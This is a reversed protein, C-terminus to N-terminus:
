FTEKTNGPVKVKRSHLYATSVSLLDGYHKKYSIPNFTLRVNRKCCNPNFTVKVSKGYYIPNLTVKVGKGYCLPNVTVKVGKGYCSSAKKM